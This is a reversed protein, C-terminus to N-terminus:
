RRSQPKRPARWEVREDRLAVDLFAIPDEGDPITVFGVYGSDKDNLCAKLRGEESFLVVTGPARATADEWYGYAMFAWLHYHPWSPPCPPNQSGSAAENRPVNRKLHVFSNMTVHGETSVLSVEIAAGRAEGGSLLTVRVVGSAVGCM